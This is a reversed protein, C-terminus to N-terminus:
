WVNIIIISCYIEWEYGMLFFFCSVPVKKKGHYYGVIGLTVFYTSYIWSVPGNFFLFQHSSHTRCQRLWM